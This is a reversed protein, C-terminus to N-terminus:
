EKDDESYSPEPIHGNVWNLAELVGDKYTVGEFDPCEETLDIMADIELTTKRM